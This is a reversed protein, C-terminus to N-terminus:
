HCVCLFMLCIVSIESNRGAVCLVFVFRRQGSRWGLGGFEVMRVVHGDVARVPQQGPSTWHVAPLGGM